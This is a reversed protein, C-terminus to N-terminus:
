HKHESLNGLATKLQSESDILFNASTVVVDGEALGSAVGVVDDGEPGTVINRPEFHNEHVVIVKKQEGDHLIASKPISVMEGLSALVEVRVYTDPAIEKAEPIEVFMKVSRTNSDVQSGISKVTGSLIQEPNGPVIVTAPMGSSVGERETEYLVAEVLVANKSPLYLGRNVSGKQDLERIWEANMGMLLLRNRASAVFTNTRERLSAGGNEAARLAMKKAELYEQQASALEPSYSVRGTARWTKQLLQKKAPAKQVGILQQREPAIMVGSSKHESHKDLPSDKEKPVPILTMGCIPCSGPRDEHIQPHMPCTYYAVSEDVKKQCSVIGGGAFVLGLGAVLLWTMIKKKM